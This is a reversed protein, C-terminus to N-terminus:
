WPRLKLTHRHIAAAIAHAIVTPVYEDSVAMVIYVMFTHAMFMYAMVVYAM